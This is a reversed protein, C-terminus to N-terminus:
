KVYSLSPCTRQYSKFLGRHPYPPFLFSVEPLTILLLLPESPPACWHGTLLISYSYCFPPPFYYILCLRGQPWWWSQSNHKTHLPPKQLTRLPLTISVAKFKFLTVRKPPPFPHFSPPEQANLTATFFITPHYHITKSPLESTSSVPNETSLNIVHM